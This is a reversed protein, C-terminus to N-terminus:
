ARLPFGLKLLADAHPELQNLREALFASLDRSRREFTFTFCTYYTINADRGAKGQQEAAAGAGETPVICHSHEEHDFWDILSYMLFIASCKLPEHSPYFTANSSLHALVQTLIMQMLAHHRERRAAYGSSSPDLVSTFKSRTFSARSDAPSVLVEELGMSAATAVSVTGDSSSSGAIRRPDPHMLDIDFLQNKAVLTVFLNRLYQTRWHLASLGQASYSSVFSHISTLFAFCAQLYADDLAPSSLKPDDPTTRPLRNLESYQHLVATYDAELKQANIKVGHPQPTSAMLLSDTKRPQKCRECTCQATGTTQAMWQWRRERPLSLLASNLCDTLVTNPPIDSTALIAHQEAGRTPRKVHACNPWCSHVLLTSQRKLWFKGYACQCSSSHGPAQERHFQAGTLTLEVGASWEKMGINAPKKLNLMNGIMAYQSAQRSTSLHQLLVPDRLLRAM